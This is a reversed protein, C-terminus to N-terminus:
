GLSSTKLPLGSRTAWTSRTSKEMSFPLVRGMPSFHLKWRPGTQCFCRTTLRAPSFRANQLYRRWLRILGIALGSPRAAADIISQAAVIEGLPLNSAAGSLWIATVDLDDALRRGLEEALAYAMESALLEPLRVLVTPGAVQHMGPRVFGHEILWPLDNPELEATAADRRIIGMAMQQLVFDPPRGSDKADAIISRALGRFRRRLEPADAFRDRVLDLLTPGLLSPLSLAQTDPAGALAQQAVSCIARLVWPERYEPAMHAGKMLFLRRHGLLKRALEFEGDNLPGVTVTRSRRGLPSVSRGNPTSIVKQSVAEDMAIVMSMYPGFTRSSLDEIERTSAADMAEMGDFALVIRTGEHNSVRILWDRAEQPSVPWSLSRSLADAVSQLAGGGVGTELYLTAINDSKSTRLCLERLVNSKGSLPPGELILVREGAGLYQALRVTAGRPALFDAIFPLAPEEWSATLEKITETSMLRIAQM